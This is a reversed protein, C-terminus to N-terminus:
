CTTCLKRAQRADAIGGKNSINTYGLASLEAKAMDARRGSRCYLVIEANKDTVQKGIQAAIQDHPINIDGQIHDGAYEETSRVDIWIAEAFASQAVGLFIFCAALIKILNQM